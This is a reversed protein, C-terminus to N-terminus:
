ASFRKRKWFAFMLAAITILIPMLGINLFKLRAGLADINQDLSHRVDRLQKRIVVKQDLFKTLEAQQEPSMIMESGKSKGSQLETLKRETESLQQQLEREKDRFSEEASRKM